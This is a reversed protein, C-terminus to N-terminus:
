VQLHTKFIRNFIKRRQWVQPKKKGISIGLPNGSLVLLLLGWLQWQKFSGRKQNPDNLSHLWSTNDSIILLHLNAIKCSNCQKSPTLQNVHITSSQKTQNPSKSSIDDNDIQYNLLHKLSCM